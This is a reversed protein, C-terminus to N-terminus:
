IRAEDPLRYLIYMMLLTNVSHKVVNNSSAIPTFIVPPWHLLAQNQRELHANRYHHSTLHFSDISTVSCAWFLKSPFWLQNRSVTAACRQSIWHSANLNVEFHILNSHSRTLIMWIRGLIKHWLCYPHSSERIRETCRCFFNVIRHILKFLTCRIWTPM